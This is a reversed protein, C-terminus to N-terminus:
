FTPLIESLWFNCWIFVRHSSNVNFSFIKPPCRIMKCRRINPISHKNELEFTYKHMYLHIFVKTSMIYCSTHKHINGYLDPGHPTFVNYLLINLPAIVLKGYFFSDVAVLPVQFVRLPSLSHVWYLMFMCKAYKGSYHRDYMRVLLLLLAVASWTIFTKWQRKLVLLDFAIPVRCFYVWATNLPICKSLNTLCIPFSQNVTRGLWLLSHGDLSPM